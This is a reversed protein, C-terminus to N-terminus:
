RERRLELMQSDLLDGVCESNFCRIRRVNAVDLGHCTVFIRQDPNVTLYRRGISWPWLSSITISTSM